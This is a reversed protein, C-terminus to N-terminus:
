ADGRRLAYGGGRKAHLYQRGNRQLKKRLYHIYVNVVASDQGEGWVAHLLTERDVFAGEAEWLALFLAYETETLAIEEGDVMVAQRDSLPYLPLPKDQKEALSLIAVLRAPRFPRDLWLHSFGEPKDLLASCCLLTGGVEPMPATDLDVVTLDCVPLAGDPDVLTVSPLYDKLTLRVFQGFARDRTIICATRYM